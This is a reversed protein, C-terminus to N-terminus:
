FLTPHNKPIAAVYKDQLLEELESITFREKVAMFLKVKPDNDELISMLINKDREDLYRNELEDLLDDTDMDDLDVSVWINKSAM